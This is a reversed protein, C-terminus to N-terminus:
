MRSLIGALFGCVEAAEGNKDSHIMDAWVGGEPGQMDVCRYRRCGCAREPFRRAVLGQLPVTPSCGSFISEMAVVM